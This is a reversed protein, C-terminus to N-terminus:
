SLELRQLNRSEILDPAFRRKVWSQPFALGLSFSSMAQRYVMSFHDRALSLTLLAFAFGWGVWRLINLWPLVPRLNISCWHAAVYLALWVIFPLTILLSTIEIAFVKSAGIHM